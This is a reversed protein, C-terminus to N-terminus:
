MNIQIFLPQFSAAKIFVSITTDKGIPEANNDTVGFPTCSKEEGGPQTKVAEGVYKSVAFRWKDFSCAGSYSANGHVSRYKDM